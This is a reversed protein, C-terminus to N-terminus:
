IDSLSNELENKILEAVEEPTGERESEDSWKWQELYSNEDTLGKEKALQDIKTLFKPSLEVKIEDFDDWVKVQSPINQWYLIQYFAM